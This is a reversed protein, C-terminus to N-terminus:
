LALFIKGHRITVILIKSKDIIMSCMIISYHFNKVNVEELSFTLNM